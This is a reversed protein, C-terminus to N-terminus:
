GEKTNHLLDDETTNFADIAPELRNIVQGAVFDGSDDCFSNAASIASNIAAALDGAVKKWKDRQTALSEIRNRLNDLERDNVQAAAKCNACEEHFHTGCRASLMICTIKDTM